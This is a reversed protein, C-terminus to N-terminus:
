SRVPNAVKDDYSKMTVSSMSPISSDVTISISEVDALQRMEESDLQTLDSPLPVGDSMEADTYLLMLVMMLTM